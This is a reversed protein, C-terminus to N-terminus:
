LAGLVSPARVRSSAITLLSFTAAGPTDSALAQVEANKGAVGTHHDEGGARQAKHAVIHFCGIPDGEQRAIQAVSRWDAARRQDEWLAIRRFALGGQVRIPQSVLGSIAPSHLRKV